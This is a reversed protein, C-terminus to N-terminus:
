FYCALSSWFSFELFHIKAFGNELVSFKVSKPRSSTKEVNGFFINDFNQLFCFPYGFVATNTKNRDLLFVSHVFSHYVFIFVASYTPIKREVSLILEFIYNFLIAKRHYFHTRM